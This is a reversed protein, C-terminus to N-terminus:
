RGGVARRLEAITAVPGHIGVIRDVRLQLRNINELFNVTFHSATAPPTANWMDAQILIRERPLYVMLIGANHSNEQIPHIEVTRTRDTLVHKETLTEFKAAAGTQAMRDPELTRPAQFSREYVARNMEHTVITVGEAAYTRIGGSHDFHHHTNVLYRIPKDPVLQQVEAIVALSRTENLPGEVVTVYDQFEIAVSNHSGGAILWVGDALKQTEVLVPAPAIGRVTAPVEIDAATHPQVDSVTLELTPHGGEKQVIRTPFKVGNFDKYDSYEIEVPMDGVVPNPLWTQVKELLNQDNLTGNVQYKGQLTFSVVTTPRGAVTQQQAAVENELAARVWGHPTLWVQLGREAATAPAPTPQDGTQDWADNGSVFFVQRQEGVIPQRGGGRPPDEFQTRLMEERSSATEYNITRFYRVVNFRPWPEDPNYNQGLAFNSGSASYQITNLNAAGMAQAADELVKQPSRSCGALFLISLVAVLKRYM